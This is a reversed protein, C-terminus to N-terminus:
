VTEIKSAKFKNNLNDIVYQVAQHAQALSPDSHAPPFPLLSNETGSFGSLYFFTEHSKVSFKQALVRAPVAIAVANGFWWSGAVSGCSVWPVFSLSLSLFYHYFNLICKKVENKSRVGILCLHFLLFLANYISYSIHCWGYFGTNDVPMKQGWIAKNYFHGLVPFHVISNLKQLSLVSLTTNKKQMQSVKLM